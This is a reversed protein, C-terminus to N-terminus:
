GRPLGLGRLAIVNRQVESTGAAITAGIGLISQLAMNCDPDAWKSGKMLMGYLGMLEAGTHGAHQQFESGFVRAMSAEWDPQLGQSQLWAVRYALIRSITGEIYLHALKQRVVPSKCPISGDPQPKKAWEILRDVNRRALAIRYIGSREFGAATMAIKWGGNVEGVVNKKPVRVNDYFVESFSRENSMTVLPSVTIGPTKFDVLFFTIGRHKPQVDPDTKALLFCWDAHHALSTWVKQGNIVYDDGDEVARTQMNPLDSGAEPESWGQCWVVDGAAIKTLHEKKQEENGHAMLAPALMGIGGFDLGPACHYNMEENIIVSLMHEDQGGYEKPWAINLWGKASLKKTIARAVKWEEDTEVHGGVGTEFGPPLEKAIFDQLEQRFKYQEPTFSFDM